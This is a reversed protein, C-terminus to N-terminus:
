VTERLKGKLALKSFTRHRQEENKNGRSKGLYGMASNYTDKVLKDFAGRNWCDLLFLRRKRIKASNNIGQVSQLIVPQFIIVRGAKWNRARVRDLEVSLIGVSRKGSKGSPADYRQTPMCVLKEWWAQWKSDGAIGGDLHDGPNQHVGGYIMYNAGLLRIDPLYGEQAQLAADGSEICPRPPPDASAVSTDEPPSHPPSSQTNVPLTAGNDQYNELPDTEANALDTIKLEDTHYFFMTPRVITDLAGEAIENIEEMKRIHGALDPTNAPSALSNEASEVYDSDGDSGGISGM